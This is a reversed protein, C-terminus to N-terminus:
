ACLIEKCNTMTAWLNMVDNGRPNPPDSFGGESVGNM